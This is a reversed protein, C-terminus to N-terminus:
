RRGPPGDTLPRTESTVAGTAVASRPVRRGTSSDNRRPQPHPRRRIPARRLPRVDLPATRALVDFRRGCRRYQRAQGRAAVAFPRRLLATIAKASPPEPRDTDDDTRGCITSDWRSRFPQSVPPVSATSSAFPPGPALYREPMDGRPRGVPANCTAPAGSEAASRWDLLPAAQPDGRFRRSLPGYAARQAPRDRAIEVRRPHDPGNLCRRLILNRPSPTGTTSKSRSLEGGQDRQTVRDSQGGIGDGARRLSDWGAM